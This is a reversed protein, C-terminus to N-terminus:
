QNLNLFDNLRRSIFVKPWIHPDESPSHRVRIPQQSQSEANISSEKSSQKTSDTGNSKVRTSDSPKGKTQNSEDSHVQNKHYTLAARTKFKVHCNECSHAPNDFHAAIHKRLATTTTLGTKCVPCIQLPKKVTSVSVDLYDLNLSEAKKDVQPKGIHLRPKKVMSKCGWKEFTTSNQTTEDSFSKSPDVLGVTKDLAASISKRIIGKKPCLSSNDGLHFERRHNFVTQKEKFNSFNESLHKLLVDNQPFVKGEIERHEEETHMVKHTILSEQKLFIKGCGCPFLGNNIETSM